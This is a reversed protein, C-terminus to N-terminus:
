LLDQLMKKSKETREKLRKPASDSPILLLLDKAKQKLASAKEKENEEIAVRAELILLDASILTMYQEYLAYKDPFTEKASLYNKVLPDEISSFNEKIQNLLFLSRKTKQETSCFDTTIDAYALAAELHCPESFLKRKIELDKLADCIAQLEPSEEKKQEEKLLSFQLLTRELQAATSFYSPARESSDILFSYTELAQEHQKEEEYAKALEFLSLRMYKWEKENQHKYEQLLAKLLAIKDKNKKKEGYLKALKLAEAEMELSDQPIQLASSSPAYNLLKELVAISRDLFFDGQLEVSHNEHEKLYFHALWLQNEKKMPHELALFLHDAAKLILERKEEDSKAEAQGLYGNFLALHLKLREEKSSATNLAKEMFCIYLDQDRHTHLHALASMTYVASIQPSNPYNAAFASLEELASEYKQIDFLTKALIFRVEISEEATFVHEKLGNKIAVTLQEKTAYSTEASSHKIANLRSRVLQRYGNKREPHHAARKLFADFANASELWKQEKTLLLAYNYLIEDKQPLNDANSLLDKLICLASDGKGQAQSFQAHMLEAKITEEEKPYASKIEKLTKEFLPFDSSEKACQLLTFLAPKIKEREEAKALFAELHKAAQVFDGIHYLSRGIYYHAISRQEQAIHSLGKDQFHAIESYRKEQFLLCLQNFAAQPAAPGSLSYIQEYTDIASLKDFKLQLSVIQLLYAEKNQPDVESLRRYFKIAPGYEKLSTHIHALPALAEAAWKSNELRYFEHKAELLLKKRNEQTKVESARQLLAAGLQLRLIADEECTIRDSSLFARTATIVDEHRGLQHLCHIRRFLTKSQLEGKEIREYASLAAAYDKESFFIDGLMACLADASSSAPHKNLFNQAQMKVASYNKEKFYESIRRLEIGEQLSPGKEGSSLPLFCVLAGTLLWSKKKM